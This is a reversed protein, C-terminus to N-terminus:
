GFYKQSDDLQNGDLFGLNAVPEIGFFREVEEGAAEYFCEEYCFIGNLESLDELEDLFAFNSSVM